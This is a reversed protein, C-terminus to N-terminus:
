FVKKNTIINDLQNINCSSQELWEKKKSAHAQYLRRNPTAYLVEVEVINGERVTDKDVCMHLPCSGVNILEGRDNVMALTIIYEDVETVICDVHKIFKYKKWNMNRGPWYSSELNKFVVGEANNNKYEEFKDKMEPYFYTPVIKIYDTLSAMNKPLMKLRESLPKWLDESTDLHVIDFVYLIDDLLECDLFITRQISANSIANFVKLIEDPLHVEGGSRSEAQYTKDKNFTVTVRKGDIKQQMCWKPTFFQEPSTTETALSPKM